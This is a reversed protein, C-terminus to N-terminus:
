TLSLADNFRIKPPNNKWSAAVFALRRGARWDTATDAFVRFHFFVSRDTAIVASGAVGHVSVQLGKVRGAGM